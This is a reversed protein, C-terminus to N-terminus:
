RKISQSVPGGSRLVQYFAEPPLEVNGIRKLKKLGAKQKSLLKMKRTVDGGYLYGTVDKRIPALRERAIVKAGVTAQIIIEFQQRPVVDKLRKTWVRGEKEVESRHLVSVLADVSKGNVLINMRVMESPAWSSEEYDFSAYGSTLSKLDSHFSSIISSLPLQYVLSVRQRSSTISSDLYQFSDQTGRQAACLDMIAGTHEEPSVITARIMPELITTIKRKLMEGPDPFDAPNDISTESGSKEILKLSVFSKTVLVESQYRFCLCILVSFTELLFVVQEDELRQRFVEAHLAGLFGLRFGQGLAASSERQVSVSRDTLTLKRVSEDLKIFQSSEYPFLGAYVMPKQPKFDELAATPFGSRHFTDGLFADAPDKMGCMVYGVQGTNLSESIPVQGPHLVGIESIEYSKRTYLSTIKEGKAISGSAVAVLSVVGKFENYWSDFALARFSVDADSSQHESTSASALPPPIHKVIADLISEVGQGTKASIPLIPDHPDLLATVESTTGLVDSNPLDIKNIVGVIQLKRKRAADLVSLTQAQIGQTCDVLLLAGQVALLSRLVESSFDVHGPTDVLNLLYPRKESPPKYVMSVSMARVTIGREREVKLNDLFQTNREGNKSSPITGTVELLRDALTSKGHDVHAIIAFNRIRDPPFDALKFPLLDRDQSALDTNEWNSM